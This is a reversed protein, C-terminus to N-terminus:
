QQLIAFSEYIALLREVALETKPIVGNISICQCLM